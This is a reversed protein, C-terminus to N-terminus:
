KGGEESSSSAIREQSMLAALQSVTDEFTLVIRPLLLRISLHLDVRQHTIEQCVPAFMAITLIAETLLDDLTVLKIICGYPRLRQTTAPDLTELFEQAKHAAQRVADLQELAATCQLPLMAAQQCFCFTINSLVRRKSAVSWYRRSLCESFTLTRVSQFRALARSQRSQTQPLAAIM